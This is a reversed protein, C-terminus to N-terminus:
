GDLKQGGADEGQKSDFDIGLLVISYQNELRNNVLPSVNKNYGFFGLM